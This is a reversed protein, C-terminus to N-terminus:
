LDYLTEDVRPPKLKRSLGRLSGGSTGLLPGEEDLIDGMEEEIKEPDEGAELRRVAEEMKGGIQMGAGECLKRMMRAMQRPNDEDIGEAERALEEMAQEMKSEDLGAPLGESETPESRGKSIAFRSVRRELKPLGCRPCAPRKTTDIRRSLFNFVTHCDACYFEYIPVTLNEEQSFGHTDFSGLRLL